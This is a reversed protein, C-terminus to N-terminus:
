SVTYFDVPSSIKFVSSSYKFKELSVFSLFSSSTLVVDTKEITIRSFFM